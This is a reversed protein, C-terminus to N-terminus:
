SPKSTDPLGEHGPPADEPWRLKKKPAPKPTRTAQAHRISLVALGVLALALLIAIAVAVPEGAMVRELSQAFGRSGRM